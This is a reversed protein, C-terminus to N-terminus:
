NSRNIVVALVINRLKKGDRIKITAPSVNPVLTEGALNGRIKRNLRSNYVVIHDSRLSGEKTERRGCRGCRRRLLRCYQARM